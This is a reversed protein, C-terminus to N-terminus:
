KNSLQHCQNFSGPIQSVLEINGRDNVVWNNAEILTESNQSYGQSASSATQVASRKSIAKNDNSALSFDRLDEWVSQGRLSQSPNEGLGGKGSVIMSDTSATSCFASIMVARDAIESELPAVGIQEDSDPSKITVEGDLGFKSSATIESDPSFFMAKTIITINGGPGFVADAKLASSNNAIIYDSDIVINGGGGNSDFVSTSIFSNHDLSLLDAELSIDGGGTLISTATIMGEDLTLDEAVTIEINGAQGLGTSNVLVQAQNILNFEDASITINGGGGDFTAATISSDVGDIEINQANIEINGAKDTGPDINSDVSSFNSVNITAGDRITLDNTTVSINGGNGDDSVANGFIGSAGFESVGILEVRDATIDLQGGNGSGATSVAIQAGERITLSDTDVKLNGGEGEAQLGVTTFLGSPSGLIGGILEIEDAKIQISGGRSSGVTTSTIQAGGIIQLTQTDIFVQGSNGLANEETNSFIGSSFGGPSTGKLLIENAQVDLTGANGIGSNNIAVQAGDSILLSQTEIFLNGGNGTAAEQEFDDVNAFIGSPGVGPAGGILEVTTAKVELNGGNGKRFASSQIQGGDALLLYETDVILDGGDGVGQSSTSFGSPFLVRQDAGTLEISNANINLNGGKGTGLTIAGAQAGGLVSINNATIDLDGGDGLGFVLTFLGSSVGNPSTGSLNIEAANININGGKGEGFTRASAEAGELVSINNAAIDINGGNGSGFVLTFLGSSSALPSSGSLEVDEATVKINGTDSGSYSSSLVQAGDTVILSSTNLEIDGGNGTATPAVDTSLRSIFPLNESTGAVELLESANIKLTGGDRNGVTDALIASGDTIFVQKGQLQVDGGNNGSVELSSAQSLIIDQFNSVETYNLSWGSDTSNLQVLSNDDVSGLEINGAEATLNGGEFIINNGVLALTKGADVELGRPRASRDVTLGPTFALLNGEGQVVIDGNGIGYQLGPNINVTLLPPAQPNRASFESGDSFKLSDATTGLFSGGIDLQANPGFIIGNPNLFFLNATGNARMLGDISSLSGGTVRTIINNITNANNFWATEGQILSFQEFSHFLNSGLTTGQLIEILNGNQNVSSNKPLTNDSVVQASTSAGLNLLLYSAVALSLNNGIKFKKGLFNVLNLRQYNM